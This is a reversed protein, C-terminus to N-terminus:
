NNDADWDLNDAVTDADIATCNTAAYMLKERM